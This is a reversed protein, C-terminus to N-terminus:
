KKTIEITNNPKFPLVRKTKCQECRIDWFDKNLRHYFIKTNKCINLLGETTVRLKNCNPWVKPVYKFFHNKPPRGKGPNLKQIEPAILTIGLEACREELNKM